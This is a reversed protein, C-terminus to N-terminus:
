DLEVVEIAPLAATSRQLLNGDDDIEFLVDGRRPGKQASQEPGDDEREQKM